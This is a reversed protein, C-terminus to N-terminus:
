TKCHSGWVTHHSVVHSLRNWVVAFPVYQPQEQAEKKNMATHMPAVRM